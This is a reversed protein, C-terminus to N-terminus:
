KKKNEKEERLRKETRESGWAAAGQVIGFVAGQLDEGKGFAKIIRQIGWDVMDQFTVEEEKPM